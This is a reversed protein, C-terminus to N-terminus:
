VFEILLIGKEKIEDIQGFKKLDVKNVNTVKKELERGTYSSSSPDWEKLVLVDGSDVEFDALRLEVNKKGSKVLEFFEPWVKKEITRM